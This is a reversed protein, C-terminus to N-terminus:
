NLRHFSLQRGCRSIPRFVFRAFGQERRGVLCRGNMETFFNDSAIAFAQFHSRNSGKRTCRLSERTFKATESCVIGVRVADLRISAWRTQKSEHQLHLIELSKFARHDLRQDHWSWAM